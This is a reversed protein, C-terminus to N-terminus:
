SAAPRGRKKAAPKGEAAKGAVPKKEEATKAGAAKPKRSAGPEKEFRVIKRIEDRLSKDQAAEDLDWSTQLKLWYEPVTNFYKGLRLALPATIRAKDGSLGRAAAESIFIDKALKSVSIDRKKMMNRLFEGPAQAIKPM